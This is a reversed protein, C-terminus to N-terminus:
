LPRRCTFRTAFFPPNTVKSIMIFDNPRCCLLTSLYIDINSRSIVYVRRRLRDNQGESSRVMSLLISTLHSAVSFCMSYLFIRKYIWHADLFHENIEPMILMVVSASLLVASYVAYNEVKSRLRRGVLASSNSLFSPYTTHSPPTHEHCVLTAFPCGM